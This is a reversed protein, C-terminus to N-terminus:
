ASAERTPLSWPTESARAHEFARIAAEHTQTLDIDDLGDLLCRKAFGDIDFRWTGIEGLRVTQRALDVGLRAGPEEELHGRIMAVTEGDLVVPLMGNKQANNKFIDGFSPAIVCRIGFDLLAYVAAERSSGCGFNDDAVLIPAERWPARHLPFSAIERGDADFRLDHFLYGGYGADRPRKMFRAPIIQDTDVNALPLPVAVAELTRFPEM